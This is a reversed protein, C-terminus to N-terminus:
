PKNKKIYDMFQKEDAEIWDGMCKHLRQWCDYIRDGVTEDLVKADFDKYDFCSGWIANMIEKPPPNDYTKMTKDEM